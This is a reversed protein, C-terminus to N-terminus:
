NKIGVNKNDKKKVRKNLETYPIACNCMIDIGINQMGEEM